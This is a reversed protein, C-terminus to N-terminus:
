RVRRPAAIIRDLTQRGVRSMEPNSHRYYWVLGMAQQFAWAMGRRWEVEDCGLRERLAARPGAALLHWGAVLDLAPDAASFDGTDLVGVLRGHRLLVNGPVLDTHSMVDAGARPLTRLESWLRRLRPVDLLTESREFCIELWADHDPLEGGRGTGSFRRGQTDVARLAEILTALDEALGTSSASDDGTAVEGAVWTQVTWPLPYGAAPLGMAVPRPAPFPSSAAFEGAARQERRLRRRVVASHGPRLPFRAALDDGVRFIAHVTGASAVPRVPRGVWDPFQEAVLRGALTTSVDLQDDHM